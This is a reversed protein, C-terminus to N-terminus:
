FLWNLRTRIFDYMERYSELDNEQMFKYIGHIDEDSGSTDKLMDRLDSYSLKKSAIGIAIDKAKDTMSVTKHNQVFQLLNLIDGFRSSNDEIEPNIDLEKVDNIENKRHLFSDKDPYVSFSIGNGKAWKALQMVYENVETSVVEIKTMYSSANPIRRKNSIIRDESERYVEGDGRGLTSFYDVAKATINNSLKRGDLEISVFPGYRGKMFGGYRSRATSMFFGKDGLYNEASAFLPQLVFSDSSAIKIMSELSTVHYVVPSLGELLETM